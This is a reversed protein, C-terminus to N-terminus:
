NCEKLLGETYNKGWNPAIESAPKFAAFLEVAKQLHPKANTCGGGFQEPTGKLNQGKLMHSRPNTADQKIATQMAKEAEMGYKMFRQQPNVLMRLTAIMSKACSIESNNPMLSDAKNLFKEAEDAYVDGNSMDEQKFGFNIKCYAAYYFPLWEKKESTGIREFNNALSNFLDAKAFASDIQTINKKMAAVFKENQAIATFFSFLISTIIIIKKMIQNKQRV